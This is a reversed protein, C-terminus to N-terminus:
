NAFEPITPGGITNALLMKKGTIRGNAKGQVAVDICNMYYERNGSANIWSWALIANKSSPANAPIPVAYTKSGILCTTLVDRLVVFTKGGDYSISFQCHGGDHVAGGDITVPISRGARLTASRPGAPKGQCIKNTPSTISYDISAVGPLNKHGRPPPSSVAMHAAA